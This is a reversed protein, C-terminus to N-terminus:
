SAVEEALRRYNDGGIWEPSTLLDYRCFSWYLSAFFPWAVFLAFGLAWPALFPAATALQRRAGSSAQGATHEASQMRLGDRRVARDASLPTKRRSGFPFTRPM